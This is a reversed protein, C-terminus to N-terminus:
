QISSLINDENSTYVSSESKLEQKLSFSKMLDLNLKGAPLETQSSNKGKFSM